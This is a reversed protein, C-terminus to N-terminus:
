TRDGVILWHFTASGVTMKRRCYKNVTDERGHLRLDVVVATDDNRLHNSLLEADPRAARELNADVWFALDSLRDRGPLGPAQNHLVDRLRSFLDDTELTGPVQRDGLAHHVRTPLTSRDVVGQVDKGWLFGESVLEVREIAFVEPSCRRPSSRVWPAKALKGM